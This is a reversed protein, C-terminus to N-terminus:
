VIILIVEFSCEAPACPVGLFPVPGFESGIWAYSAATGTLMEVGAPFDAGYSQGPPPCDVADIGLVGKIRRDASAALVSSKGGLSHGMAIVNNSNAAATNLRAWDVLASVAKGRALHTLARFPTEMGPQWSVVVYGHSALRKGTLKYDNAGM